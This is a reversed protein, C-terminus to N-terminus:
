CDCVSIMVKKLGPNCRKDVCAEIRVPFRTGYGSQVLINEVYEPYFGAAEVRVFYLGPELGAFVFEGNQDTSTSALASHDRFLRVRTNPRAAGGEDSVQGKIAGSTSNTLYFHDGIRSHWCSRFTIPIPPLTIQQGASLQISEVEGRKSYKEYLFLDYSGPELGVFQFTQGSVTRVVGQEGHRILDVRVSTPDGAEDVVSGSLSATQAAGSHSLMWASALTLVLARVMGSKYYDKEDWSRPM